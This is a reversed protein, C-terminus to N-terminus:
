QIGNVTVKNILNMDTSTFHPGAMWAGPNIGYTFGVESNIDIGLHANTAYFEFVIEWYGTEENFVADSVYANDFLCIGTRSVYWQDNTDKSIVNKGNAVLRMEINDQQHWQGGRNDLEKTQYKAFFYVAFEDRTAYLDLKIDKTNHLIALHNTKVVDNWHADDMKGDLVPGVMEAGQSYKLYHYTIKANQAGFAVFM